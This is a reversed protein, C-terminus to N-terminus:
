IDTYTRGQVPPLVFLFAHCGVQGSGEVAMPQRPHGDQSETTQRNANKNRWSDACAVVDQQENGACPDRKLFKLFVAAVGQRGATPCQQSEDSVSDDGRQCVPIFEFVWGAAEAFEFVKGHGYQAQEGQAVSRAASNHRLGSEALYGVQEEDGNNRGHGVSQDGRHGVDVEERKSWGLAISRATEGAGHTKAIAHGHNQNGQNPQAKM